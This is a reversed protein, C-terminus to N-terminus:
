FIDFGMRLILMYLRYIYIADIYIYCIFLMYIAYLSIYIYTYVYLMYLMYLMYLVFSFYSHRQVRECFVFGLAHWQAEPRCHCFKFPLIQTMAHPGLVGWFRLVLLTCNRRRAGPGRCVSYYFYYSSSSSHHRQMREWVVFGFAHLQAEPCRSM